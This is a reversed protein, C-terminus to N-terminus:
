KRITARKGLAVWLVVILAAVVTLATLKEGLLMWSFLITLFPQLYQLQSVRAVGALAMGTYWPIFGLFQSGLGLYLLASWAKWPAHLIHTTGGIMLNLTVLIIVAPISIVVSWAIVQWGGLDRSMRGGQAYAFSVVVVAGLLALDAMHVSGFGTIGIYVLVTLAGGGSCLWFLWSPREGHRLASVAATALPLLALEVAGHSAPVRDMAWATLLPFGFITGLSTVMLGPIYQRSPFRERKRLLLPIAFVAAILARGPGVLIAGFSGVAERSAPLTLSFVLVAILGYVLGISESRASRVESIQVGTKSM